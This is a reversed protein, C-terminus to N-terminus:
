YVVSQVHPTEIWAERVPPSKCSLDDVDSYFTEIWAERVPPSKTKMTTIRGEKLKL